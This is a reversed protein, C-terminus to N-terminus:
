STYTITTEYSTVLYYGGWTRYHVDVTLKHTDSLIIDDAMMYKSYYNYHFEGNYDPRYSKAAIVTKGPLIAFESDFAEGYLEFDDITCYVYAPYVPVDGSNTMSILTINLKYQFLDGTISGYIEKFGYEISNIKPKSSYLSFNKEFIVKNDKEVLFHYKGSKIPIWPEDSLYVYEVHTFIDIDKSYSLIPRQIIQENDPNFVRIEANDSVDFNIFLCTYGDKDTIEWSNLKFTTSPEDLNETQNNNNEDQEIEECGSLGVVLLLVATGTAILHKKM